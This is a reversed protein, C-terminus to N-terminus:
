LKHRFEPMKEPFFFPFNLNKRTVLDYWKKKGKESNHYKKLEIFISLNMKVDDGGADHIEKPASVTAILALKKM